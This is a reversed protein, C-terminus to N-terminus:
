DAVQAALRLGATHYANRARFLFVGLTQMALPITQNGFAHRM